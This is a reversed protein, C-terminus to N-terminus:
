CYDRITKTFEFDSERHKLKLNRGMKLGRYPNFILAEKMLIERIKSVFLLAHEGDGHM